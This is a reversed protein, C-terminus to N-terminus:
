CPANKWAMRPFPAKKSVYPCEDCAGAHNSGSREGDRAEGNNLRAVSAGRATSGLSAERAKVRSIGEAHPTAVGPESAINERADKKLFVLANHHRDSNAPPPPHGLWSVDPFICLHRPLWLVRHPAGRVPVGGCPAHVDGEAHPGPRRTRRTKVARPTVVWSATPTAPPIQPIDLTGRPERALVPPRRCRQPTPWACLRGDGRRASTRRAPGTAPPEGGGPRQCHAGQVGPDGGSPRGAGAARAPRGRPASCRAPSEPSGAPTPWRGSRRAPM